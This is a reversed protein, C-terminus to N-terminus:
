WIPPMWADAPGEYPIRSIYMRDIFPLWKRYTAAGGAVWIPRGAAVTKLHETSMAIGDVVVQRGPLPPLGVWTKYGVLVVGGMTMQKFWKLDEPDHWPMRGELGLQGHKGVAAILNM